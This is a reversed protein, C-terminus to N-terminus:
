LIYFIITSLAATDLQEFFVRLIINGRITLLFIKYRNDYILPFVQDTYFLATRLQSPALATIM